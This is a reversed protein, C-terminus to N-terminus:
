RAEECLKLSLYRVLSHTWRHGVPLVQCAKVRCPQPSGWLRLYPGYEVQRKQGRYYCGEKFDCAVFASNRETPYPGAPHESSPREAGGMGGHHLSHFCDVFGAPAIEKRSPVAPNRLIATAGSLLLDSVLSWTVKRHKCKM